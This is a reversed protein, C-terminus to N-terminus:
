KRRNLARRRIGLEGGGRGLEDGRQGPRVFRVQAKLWEAMVDRDFRRM